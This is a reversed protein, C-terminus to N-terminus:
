ESVLISDIEYPTDMELTEGSLSLFKSATDLDDEQEPGEYNSKFGNM